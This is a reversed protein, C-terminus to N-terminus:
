QNLGSFGRLVDDNEVVCIATTLEVNINWKTIEVVSRVHLHGEDILACGPYASIFFHSENVTHPM